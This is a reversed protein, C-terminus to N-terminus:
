NEGRTRVPIEGDTTRMSMPTQQENSFVAKDQDDEVQPENAMVSWRIPVGEQERTDRRQWRLEQNQADANSCYARWEDWKPELLTSRIFNPPSDLIQREVIQQNHRDVILDMAANIDANLTTTPSFAHAGDRGWWEVGVPNLGVNRSNRLYAIQVAGAARELVPVAFPRITVAEVYRNIQAHYGVFREYHDLDRPRSNRLNTIILGGNQRGVRGAAQIYQATSKPQGTVMMLNIRDVDVGTGFMSTSLLVDTAGDDGRRRTELNNLVLPLHSSEMRGSLEVIRGMDPRTITLSPLSRSAIVREISQQVEFDLLTRAGALERVSNYYGVLTWYRDSATNNTTDFARYGHVLLSSFMDRQAALASQGIPCIGLFLRGKEDGRSSPHEDDREVIFGRDKWTIGKPPFLNTTRNFLCQVQEEGRNITASSAVYKPKYNELSPHESMLKDIVTEYFGVMSGLPGEILHLEDQVILNPPKLGRQASFNSIFETSPESSREFGTDQHYSGVAGFLQGIKGTSQRPLQAFKDVTSVVISPCKQYIQEDVTYAPIPMGRHVDGDSSDKWGDCAYVTQSNPKAVGSRVGAPMAGQWVRRNLDCTPNPCHIVFDVTKSVKRKPNWHSRPFYGPRGPRIARNFLMGGNAQIGTHIADWLERVTAENGMLGDTNLSLTIIDQQHTHVTASNVNTQAQCISIINQQTINKSFCVWHITNIPAKITSNTPYALDSNCAPCSLIQAPEPFKSLQSDTLNHGWRLVRLANGDRPQNDKGFPNGEVGLRNPTLSTGVWLGLSVPQSSFPESHHDKNTDPSWGMNRLYELATVTGLTRRSQQITLLRLTYRTIVDVGHWQSQSQGHKFQLRRHVIAYAMLLLYAETKGGGTAVWLLDLADRNPSDVNTLSEVSALAFALQFKRWRFDWNPNKWQNSLHIARNAINFAERATADTLLINMGDTMRELADHAKQVVSSPAGALEGQIWKEYGNVLPLLKANIDTPSFATSLAEATPCEEWYRIDKPDMEPAPLVIMPLYETRIDPQTFRDLAAAIAPHQGDTWFFPPKKALDDDQGNSSHTVLLDQKQAASMRQPDFEGWTVSCLHGRGRQSRNAYRFEDLRVEYEQESSCEEMQPLGMPDPFATGESFVVRIEPQHILLKNYEKDWSKKGESNLNNVLMLTVITESTKLAPRINVWLATEGGTTNMLLDGNMPDKCSFYIMGNSSSSLAKYIEDATFHIARPKRHWEQTSGNSQHHYMAYTVAVEFSPLKGQHVCTFSMGMNNPPRHPDIKPIFGDGPQASVGGDEADESSSTSKGKELGLPSLVEDGGVVLTADDPDQPALVGIFYQNIPFEGESMKIIESYGNLPGLTDESFGTVMSNRM